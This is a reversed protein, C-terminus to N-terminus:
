RKPTTQIQTQPIITKNCEKDRVIRRELHGSLRTTIERANFSGILAALDHARIYDYDGLLIVEDGISVAKGEPIELMTANMCIRGVVKAYFNNIRMIGLNTFRRDYGDHYGVPITAVITERTTTYTRDYGVCTNVLIKKIHSIRSKWTLVPKLDLLPHDQPTDRFHWLGNAAAGLRVFNCAPYLSNMTSSPGSNAAHKLPIHIGNNELEQIVSNFTEFQQMTFSKDPNSAEACHTFLARIMLGQMTSIHTLAALSEDPKFGFRSLGTDIKVHVAIKKNLQEGIASLIHATELDFVPLDIDYMIALAPDEDIISLVLIPKTIGAHRLVMAESLSATCLWNVHPNEECLQGYERIGHGSANSKLVVSLQTKDGILSRYLAINHDFANQNIELWTHPKLVLM